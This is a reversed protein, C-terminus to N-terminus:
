TRAGPKRAPAPTERSRRAIRTPERSAASDGGNGLGVSTVFFSMEPRQAQAATAVSAALLGAAFIRTSRKM